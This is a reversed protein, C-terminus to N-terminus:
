KGERRALEDRLDDPLDDKSPPRPDAMKLVELQIKALAQVSALIWGLLEGHVRGGIANGDIRHADDEADKIIMGLVDRVKETDM